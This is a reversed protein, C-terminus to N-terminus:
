ERISHTDTSNAIRGKLKEMEALLPIKFNLFRKFNMKDVGWICAQSVKM